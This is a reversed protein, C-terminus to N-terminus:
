ATLRAGRGIASLRYFRKNRLHRSKSEVSPHRHHDFM